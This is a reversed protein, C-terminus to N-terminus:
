NFNNERFYNSSPKTRCLAFHFNSLFIATINYTFLKLYIWENTQSYQVNMKNTINKLSESKLSIIINMYNSM